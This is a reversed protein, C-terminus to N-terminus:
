NWAQVSSVYQAIKSAKIGINMPQIAAGPSHCRGRQISTVFWGSSCREIVFTTSEPVGTYCHPFKQANPDCLFRLGTWEKKPLIRALTHEIGVVCDGVKAADSKRVSARYQVADIAATLKETHTTNIKM